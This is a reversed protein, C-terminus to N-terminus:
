SIKRVVVTNNGAVEEVIIREGTKITTKDISVATLDRLTDQVEVQVVGDGEAPITLYVTGEKGIANKIDMTGDSQLRGVGKFIKGILWFAFVGGMFAGIIAFLGSFHSQRSLALGVLGFMMFFAALGQLSIAKFSSDTDGDHADFGGDHGGTDMDGHHGGILMLVLRGLFILGGLVASILFVKEVAKYSEFLEGM